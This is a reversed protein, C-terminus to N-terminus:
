FKNAKDKSTVEDLKMLFYLSSFCLGTLVLTVFNLLLPIDFVYLSNFHDKLNGIWIALILWPAIFTYLVGAKFMIAKM